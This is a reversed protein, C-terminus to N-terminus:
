GSFNFHKMVVNDCHVMEANGIIIKRKKIETSVNTFHKMEGWDINNKAFFAEVSSNRGAGTIM